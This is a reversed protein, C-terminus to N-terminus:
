DTDYGKKADKHRGQARRQGRRTGDEGRKAGRLRWTRLFPAGSGGWAEFLSGESRFVGFFRQFVYTRHFDGKKKLFHYFIPGSGGCILGLAGFHAGLVGLPEWILGLVRWFSGLFPM